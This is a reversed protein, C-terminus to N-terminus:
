EPYTNLALEYNKKAEFYNERETEARATKLYKSVIDKRLILPTLYVRLNLTRKERGVNIKAKINKYAEKEIECLYIGSMVESIAKGQENTYMPPLQTGSFRIKVGKIPRKIEKDYIEFVVQVPVPREPIVESNMSLNATLRPSLPYDKGGWLIHELKNTMLTFQFFEREFRM